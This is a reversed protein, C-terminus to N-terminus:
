RIESTIIASLREDIVHLINYCESLFMTVQEITCGQISVDKDAKLLPLYIQNLQARSGEAIRGIKNKDEGFLMRFDGRYSLSIIENYLQPLMFKDPMLLLAAQFSTDIVSCKYFHLNRAFDYRRSTELAHFRM